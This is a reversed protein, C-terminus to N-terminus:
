EESEIIQDIFEGISGDYTKDRKAEEGLDPCITDVSYLYKGTKYQITFTHHMRSAAFGLTDITFIALDGKVKLQCNTKCVLRSFTPDLEIKYEEGDIYLYLNYIAIM